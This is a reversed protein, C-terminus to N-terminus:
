RARLHTEEDVFHLLRNWYLPWAEAPGGYCTEYMRAWAINRDSLISIYLVFNAEPSEFLITQGSGDQERPSWTGNSYMGLENEFALVRTKFLEINGDSIPISVSRLPPVIPCAVIDAAAALSAATSVWILASLWIAKLM